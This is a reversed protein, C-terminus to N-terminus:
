KQQTSARCLAARCAGPDATRILSASVPCPRLELHGVVARAEVRGGGRGPRSQPVHTVPEGRETTGALDVGGRAPSGGDGTSHPRGVLHGCVGTRHRESTAHPLSRATGMGVGAHARCHRVIEAQQKGKRTALRRANGALRRGGSRDRGLDPPLVVGVGIAAGLATQGPVPPVFLGAPTALSLWALVPHETLAKARFPCACPWARNPSRRSRETPRHGGPGPGDAYRQQGARCLVAHRDYVTQPRLGCVSLTFAYRGTMSSFISSRM